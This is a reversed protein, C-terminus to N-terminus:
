RPDHTMPLWPASEGNTEIFKRIYLQAEPASSANLCCRPGFLAHAQNETIGFHKLVPDSCWELERATRNDVLAYRSGFPVTTRKRLRLIDQERISKSAYHGLVDGPDGNPHAYFGRNFSKSGSLSRYVAELNAVNLAM